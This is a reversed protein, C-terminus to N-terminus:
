NRLTTVRFHIRPSRWLIPNARHADIRFIDDTLRFNDTDIIMWGCINFADSEGIFDPEIVGNELTRRYDDINAPSKFHRIGVWDLPGVGMIKIFNQAKNAGIRFIRSIKPSFNFKLQTIIDMYKIFCCYDENRLPEAMTWKNM